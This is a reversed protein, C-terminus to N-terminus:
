AVPGLRTAAGPVSTGSVWTAGHDSSIKIATGKSAVLKGGTYLLDTYGTTPFDPLSVSTWTPSATLAATRRVQGRTDMFFWYGGGYALAIPEGVFGLLVQTWSSGDASVRACPWVM